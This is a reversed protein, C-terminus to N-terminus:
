DNDPPPPVAESDRPAKDASEDDAIPKDAAAKDAAADDAKREAAAEDAPPAASEDARRSDDRRADSRPSDNLRPRDGENIQPRLVETRPEANPEGGARAPLSTDEKQRYLEWGHDTPTFEYLGERVTYRAQGEGEGRDFAVVFQGKETLRQTEGPEVKMTRAGDITFGLAVDSMNRIAVGPGNYPVAAQYTPQQYTPQVQYSPQYYGSNYNGGYYGRNYGPNYGYGYGGYGGYRGYRGYNPGYGYGSGYSFGGPGVSFGSGRNGYSFGGPGVSFGSGGGYGGRGGGRGGRQGFADDVTMLTLATAIALCPLVFSLRM